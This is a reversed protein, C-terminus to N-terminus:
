QEYNSICSMNYIYKTYKIKGGRDKEDSGSSSASSGSGLEVM